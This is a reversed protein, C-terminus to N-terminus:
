EGGLDVRFEMRRGGEKGEEEMEKKRMGRMKRMKKVSREVTGDSSTRSGPKKPPLDTLRSHM